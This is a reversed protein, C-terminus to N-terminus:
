RRHPPVELKGNEVAAKSADKDQPIDSQLLLMGTENLKTFQAEWAKLTQQQSSNDTLKATAHCLDSCYGLAKLQAVILNVRLNTKTSFLLEGRTRSSARSRAELEAPPLGTKSLNKVSGNSEWAKLQNTVTECFASIDRIWTEISKGPDKIWLLKDVEKDQSVVSYLLAYGYSEGSKPAAADAKTSFTVTALLAILAVFSFLPYKKLFM